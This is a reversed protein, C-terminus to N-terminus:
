PSGALMSRPSLDVWVATINDTSGRGVAEDVLVRTVSPMPRGRSSPGREARVRDVIDTADRNSLVDWLGDTALLLYDEKGTLAYQFAEPEQTVYPRAYWDGVARSLSLVGMTRDVGQVNVVFGGAQEIRERELADGPKHDRTLQRVEGGGAMKLIARSDGLNSLTLKHSELVAMCATSGCGAVRTDLLAEGLRDVDELTRRLAVNPKVPASQSVCPWAESEGTGEDGRCSGGSAHSSACTSASDMSSGDSTSSSSRSSALAHRRLHHRLFDPSYSACIDAMQGGGHGDYVAFFHIGEGGLNKCVSFRDEMYERANKISCVATRVM